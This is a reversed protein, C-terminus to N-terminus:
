CAQQGKQPLSRVGVQRMESNLGSPDEPFNAHLLLGSSQGKQSTDGKNRMAWCDFIRIGCLSLFLDTQSFTLSILVVDGTEQFLVAEGFATLLCRIEQGWRHMTRLWIAKFPEGWWFM